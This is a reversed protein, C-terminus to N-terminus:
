MRDFSHHRKQEIRKRNFWAALSQPPTSLHSEASRERREENDNASSSIRRKLQRIEWKFGIDTLARLREESMSSTKQEHLLRYQVRQRNVWTALGKNLHYKTPVDCNGHKNKYDVLEDYMKQWQGGHADWIFGIKEMLEIHDDSINSRRGQKFLKYNYRQRKVWRGLAKNINNGKYNLPISCHGHKRQYEVLNKFHKKWQETMSPQYAKKSIWQNIWEDVDDAPPLSIKNSPVWSEKMEAEEEDDVVDVEDINKVLTSTKETSVSDADESDSQLKARKRNKELYNSLKRKKRDMEEEKAVNSLLKKKEQLDLSNYRIYVDRIIEDLSLKTM